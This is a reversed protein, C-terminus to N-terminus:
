EKPWYRAAAIEALARAMEEIDTFTARESLRRIYNEMEQSMARDELRKAIELQVDRNSLPISRDDIRELFLWVKLNGDDLPGAHGGVSLKPAAEGLVGSFFKGQAYPGVLDWAPTQGGETSKYENEPMAAVEPFPRGADLAAQIAAVAETKSAPVRILRFYVKAPPNYLEPRQEYELRVDKWSVNIRKRIRETIQHRILLTSELDKAYQQETMNKERLQRSVQSRTGGAKRRTDETLENVFRKLGQRAEPELSFRAEEALLEDRLMLGLESRFLAVCYAMWQPRTLVMQEAGAQPQQGLLTAWQKATLRRTQAAVRLRDGPSGERDLMDSVRVPRGNIEGVKADVLTPPGAADPQAAGAAPEGPIAVADFMGDSASLVSVTPRPPTAISAPPEAVPLAPETPPTAAAHDPSATQTPMTAPDAIFDETRLVTGQSQKQLGCGAVCAVGAAAILGTWARTASSM